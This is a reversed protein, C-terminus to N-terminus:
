CTLRYPGAETLVTEPTTGSRCCVSTGCDALNGGGHDGGVSRTETGDM